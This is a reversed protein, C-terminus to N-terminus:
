QKSEKGETRRQCSKGSYGDASCRYCLHFRKAINWREPVHKKMFDLCTWIRHHGSCVQCTIGKRELSRTEKSEGFFSGQANRRSASQEPQNCEINGIFGHITESAITQFESEQIVWTRLSVVSEAINTKIFGVIFNRWCPSPFNERCNLTFFVMDSSM